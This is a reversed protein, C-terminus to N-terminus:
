KKEEYDKKLIGLMHSNWYKGENFYSERLVGEEKFGLHKYVELATNNSYVECWIRNLNLDDFGYNILTRLADSGWGGNRFNDDGIYIGFEAHRHIWNIYYLGCHGILKNTEKDHIQFNVQESDENIKKFWKEQMIKSIERHERFYKRLGPRNRWVRLQELNNEEVSVLTIKKGSLM